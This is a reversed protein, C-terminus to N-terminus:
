EIEVWEIRYLYEYIMDSIWPGFLWMLLNWILTIGIAAPLYIPLGSWAMIM